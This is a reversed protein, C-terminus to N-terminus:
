SISEGGLITVIAWGFFLWVIAGLAIWIYNAATFSANSAGEPDGCSVNIFRQANGYIFMTPVLLIISLIQAKIAFSSSDPVRSLLTSVIMLIVLMTAQTGVNFDTDRQHNEGLMKVERFLSHVFFISFIMRAWPWIDADTGGLAVSRQQHNRWNKYHWYLQYGGLTAMFLVMMKIPSVVYFAETTDDNHVKTLDAKPPAYVSDTM